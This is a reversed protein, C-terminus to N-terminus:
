IPAPRLEFIRGASRTPAITLSAPISGRAMPAIWIVSRKESTSTGSSTASSIMPVNRAAVM